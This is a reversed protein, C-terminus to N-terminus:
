DIEFTEDSKQLFTFFCMREEKERMGRLSFLKFFWALDSDAPDSPPASPEGVLQETPIGMITNCLYAINLEFTMQSSLVFLNHQRIVDRLYRESMKLQIKELAELYATKKADKKWAHAEREDEKHGELAADFHAQMREYFTEIQEGGLWRLIMVEGPRRHIHYDNTTLDNEAAFGLVLKAEAIAQDAVLVPHEPVKAKEMQGFSKQLGRAFDPKLGPLMEAAFKRHGEFVAALEAHMRFEDAKEGAMAEPSQPKEDPLEDRREDDEFM